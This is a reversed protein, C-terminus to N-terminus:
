MSSQSLEQADLKLPHNYTTIKLHSNNMVSRLRATNLENLFVPMSHYGNNDYWIATRTGNLSIGGYRSEPYENTTNLIWRFIEESSNFRKCENGFQDISNANCQLPFASQIGTTSMSGNESSYVDTSNSYLARSFKLNVDHEGPPRLQMFGMAIIEFIAPLILVGLILRFNRKFHLYRKGLLIKMVEFETLHEEQVIPHIEDMKKTDSAFHVTGNTAPKEVKSPAVLENFVHELNSSVIRFSEIAQSDVMGEIAKILTAYNAVSSADSRYNITAVLSEGSISKISSTSVFEQLLMKISETAKTNDVSGFHVHLEFTKTFQEKLSDPDYEAVIHGEKMILISDSLHEAEDLYHTALVVARGQRLVSVLDWINKRAKMDVGSCPEDLIVLNPSGTIFCIDPCIILVSM